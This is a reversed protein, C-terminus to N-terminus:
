SGAANSQFPGNAEAGQPLLASGDRASQLANRHFAPKVSYRGRPPRRVIM